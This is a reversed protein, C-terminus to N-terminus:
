GSLEKQRRTPFPNSMARMSKQPIGIMSTKKSEVSHADEELKVSVTLKVDVGGSRAAKWGDDAENIPLGAATRLEQHIRIDAIRADNWGIVSM